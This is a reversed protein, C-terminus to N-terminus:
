GEDLFSFLHWVVQSTGGGSFLHSQKLSSALFPELFHLILFQLFGFDPCFHLSLHLFSALFFFGRHWFVHQLADQSCRQLEDITHM